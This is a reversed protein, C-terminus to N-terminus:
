TAPRLSRTPLLKKNQQRFLPSYPRRSIEIPVFRIHSRPEVTEARPPHLRWLEAVVQEQLPRNRVRILVCTLSLKEIPLVTASAPIYSWM